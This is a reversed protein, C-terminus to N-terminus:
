FYYKKRKKGNSIPYDISLIKYFSVIFLLTCKYNKIGKLLKTARSVRNKAGASHRAPLM